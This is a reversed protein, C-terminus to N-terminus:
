RGNGQIDAKEVWVDSMVHGIRPEGLVRLMEARLRDFEAQTELPGSLCIGRVPFNVTVIKRYAPDSALVPAVLECEEAYRREFARLAGLHGGMSFSVCIGVSFGIVIGILVASVFHVPRM